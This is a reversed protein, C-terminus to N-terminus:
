DRRSRRRSDSIRFSRSRGQRCAAVTRSRSDFPVPRFVNAISAPRAAEIPGRRGACRTPAISKPRGHGAEMLGGWYWCLLLLLPRLPLSYPYAGSSAVEGWRIRQCPLQIQTVAEGWYVTWWLVIAPWRPGREVAPVLRRAHNAPHAPMSESACVRDGNEPASGFVVDHTRIGHYGGLV